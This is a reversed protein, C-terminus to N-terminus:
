GGLVPKWEQMYWAVFARVGDRVSTSPRYGTLRQLLDYSALTASVDGAQMPLNNRIAERGVADEIEAIFDNLHTERGGGINVLRYPATPSLSDGEVAPGLPRCLALRVIGEVLDDIYTFDRKLDGGNYVDIPEGRDIARVFKYLAMDPRGWPGYVSFFRFFTTPVGFLHAYSHGMAEAALKTAAYLTLPHASRDTEIMPQRADGGYASSTSAMLLHAPPAHRALELVNFSGVLNSSVYTQPSDISYRVGAQAALHIVIEPAAKSWGARLTEIDELDCRIEAFPGERRLIDTRLQKLRVDYYANHNDIGTVRAGDRQLRRCLHFGIFGASGTVLVSKGAWAGTPNSNAPETVDAV